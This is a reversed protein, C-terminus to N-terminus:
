RILHVAAISAAPRDARAAEDAQHALHRRRGDSAHGSVPLSVLLPQKLQAIDDSTRLRRDLQERGLILGSGLLLGVAVSAGINKFLNPSSPAIPATAQKLVTLNTHTNQSEVSALSLRQQM